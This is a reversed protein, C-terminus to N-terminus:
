FYFGWQMLMRLAFNDEGRAPHSVWIPFYLGVEMMTQSEFGVGGTLYVSDSKNLYDLRDLWTGQENSVVAGDIFVMPWAVTKTQWGLSIGSSFINNQWEKEDIAVGRFLPIRGERQQWIKPVYLLRYALENGGREDWVFGAEGHFRIIFGEIKHTEVDASIGFNYFSSEEQFGGLLHVELLYRQETTYSFISWKEKLKMSRGVPWWDSSDSSIYETTSLTTTLRSYYSEGHAVLYKPEGLYNNFAIKTWKKPYEYGTELEWYTNVTSKLPTKYSVKGGWNNEPVGTSFTIELDFLNQYFAPMIPMMNIGIGGSFKLGTRWNGRWDRKLKPRYYVKYTEWHPLGYDPQLSIRRPWRNNFRNDDFLRKNPDLEASVLQSSTNIEIINNRNIDIQPLLTSDGNETIILVDVPLIWSGDYKTNIKNNWQRNVNYKSTVDKIKFDPRLNTSLALRFNDAIKDNTHLKIINIFNETTATKGKFMMSYDLMIKQMVSDGESAQLMQLAHSGVIYKSYINAAAEWNIQKGPRYIPPLSKEGIVDLLFQTWDEMDMAKIEPWINLDPIPQTFTFPDSKEKQSREFLWSAYEALSENLWNEAYADAQISLGFWQHALEHDLVHGDDIKDQFIIYNNTTIARSGISYGSSIVLKDMLANGFRGEYFPILKGLRDQINKIHKDQSNQTIIEIQIGSIKLPYKKMGKVFVASSSLTYDDKIMYKIHGIELEVQKLIRGSTGVLFDTPVSLDIEYKAFNSHPKISHGYEDPHWGDTYFYELVPYYHIANYTVTDKRSGYAPLSPNGSSTFYTKFPIDIIVTEGIQVPPFLSITLVLSDQGTVKGGHSCRVTSIESFPSTHSDHNASNHFYLEKLASQSNNVIRVHNVGEIFGSAQDTRPHFYVDLNYNIELETGLLFTSLFIGCISNNLIRKNVM